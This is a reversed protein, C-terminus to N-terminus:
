VLAMLREVVISVAARQDNEATCIYHAAPNPISVNSVLCIDGRELWPSSIPQRLLMIGLGSAAAALVTDYDELRRDQWRPHYTRGAQALWSRWHSTDSDHLLPHRLVEDADTVTTLGDAIAPAAAPVLTERMLLQARVGSWKGSGYRLAVDAERAALDNPRHDIDLDIHIDGQEIQALRPILWLRAFSPVVSLRITQRGRWPRWQQASRALISLSTRAEAAFRQGAPTLRVGRGHREFLSTGLWAELGTIRRSIAGHTIGLKEAAATFSGTDAAVLLATLADLQPLSDIAQM